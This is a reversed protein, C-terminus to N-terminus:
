KCIWNTYFTYQTEKISIITDPIVPGVNQVEMTSTNPTQTVAEQISLADQYTDSSNKFLSLFWEGLGTNRNRLSRANGVTIFDSADFSNTASGKRGIIDGGMNSGWIHHTGIGADEFSSGRKVAGNRIIQETIAVEDITAVGDADM